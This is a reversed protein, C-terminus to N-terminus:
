QGGKGGGLSLFYKKITDKLGDPIEETALDREVQRRYQAPIEERKEKSVGINNNAGQVQLRTRDGENVVGKLQSARNNALPAIDRMGEMKRGPERGPLMGTGKQKEAGAASNKEAGANEEGAKERGEGRSSALLSALFEQMEEQTLRELEAKLQAELQALLNQLEGADMEKEGPQGELARSQELARELRPLQGIKEGIGAGPGMKDARGELQKLQRKLEEIEAWLGERNARSVPFLAGELKGLEAPKMAELRNMAQALEERFLEENVENQLRKEAVEQLARAADVSQSLGQIEAKERVPELFEKLSRASAVTAAENAKAAFRSDPGLRAAAIWVGAVILAAVGYWSFSKQFTVKPDFDRLYGAAEDLVLREAPNKEARALIEWATLGRDEMALIRDLLFVSKLSDKGSWRRLRLVAISALFFLGLPVFLPDFWAAWVGRTLLVPLSLALSWFFAETIIRERRRTKEWDMLAAFKEKLLNEHDM